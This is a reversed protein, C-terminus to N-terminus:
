WAIRQLAISEKSKAKVKNKKHTSHDINWKEDDENSMTGTCIDIAFVNGGALLLLLILRKRKNKWDDIEEDLCYTKKNRNSKRM